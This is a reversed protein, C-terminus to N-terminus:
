RALVLNNNADYIHVQFSSGDICKHMVYYFTFLYHFCSTHRIQLSTINIDIYYGVFFTKKLFFHDM